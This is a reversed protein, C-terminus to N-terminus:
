AAAQSMEGLQVGFRQAAEAAAMLAASRGAFGTRGRPCWTLDGIPALEVGCLSARYLDPEGDIPSVVVRSDRAAAEILIREGDPLPISLSFEEPVGMLAAFIVGGTDLMEHEPATTHMRAIGPLTMTLVTLALRVARDYPRGHTEISWSSLFRSIHLPQGCMSYSPGGESRRHLGAGRITMGNEGLKFQTGQTAGAYFPNPPEGLDLLQVMRPVVSLAQRALAWERDDPLRLFEYGHRRSVGSPSLLDDNM